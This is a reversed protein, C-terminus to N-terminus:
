QASFRARYEDSTIFAKVMEAAVFNGHFEELKSLWFNYGDFNLNQEPSENPNRRMYGFYQMLVFARNREADTFARNEAVKRLVNARTDTRDNLGNVYSTRQSANLAGGTNANLADVYQENTLADYLQRFDFRTVFEDFYARTNVELTVGWDTRGVVVGRGIFRQDRQLAQMVPMGMPEFGSSAFAARHARYALFGTQQFEISLFFAASTNVRRVERCQSDAGCSEINNTWFALGEDDPARNLFDHYHQRVFFTSDEVPNTAAPTADNDHIVITGLRPSGLSVGESGVLDFHVSEDGEVYGDDTLLVDVTKSSEGPAFSLTGFVPTYDRRADVTGTQTLYEVTAAGSTDGTRTVTVTVHDDSESAEYTAKSLHVEFPEVGGCPTAASFFSNRPTPTGLQFDASNDDTDTCGGNRRVLAQAVSPAPAALVGERCSATGYGVFDVLDAGSPCSGIRVVHSGRYLAVYAGAGNLNPSFGFFPFDALFIEQGETGRAFEFLFHKGPLIVSNNSAFSFGSTSGPRGELGGVEVSWGSINVSTAGRNFLEVFDSRYTAGSEGGRSYVQSIVIDPSGAASQARASSQLFIFLCVALSAFAAARVVIGRRALPNSM